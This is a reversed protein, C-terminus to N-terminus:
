GRSFHRVEDEVLRSDGLIADKGDHKLSDNRLLDHTADLNRQHVKLLPERGHCGHDWHQPYFLYGVAFWGDQLGMVEGAMTAVSSYKVRGMQCVPVGWVLRLPVVRLLILACLGTLAVPDEFGVTGAHVM